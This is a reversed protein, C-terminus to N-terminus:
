LHGNMEERLHEEADERSDFDEGCICHAEDTSEENEVHFEEVVEGDVVDYTTQGYKITDVSISHPPEEQVHSM